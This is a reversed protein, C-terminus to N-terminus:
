TGLIPPFSFLFQQVAATYGVTMTTTVLRFDGVSVAGVSGDIRPASYSLDNNDLSKGFLRFWGATGAARGVLRWSQNLDNAMWVGSPTFNLGGQAGNPMWALGLNTVYALVTGVGVFDASSPQAGSFIAIRGGNFISAFSEAGLIRAKFNSSVNVTM